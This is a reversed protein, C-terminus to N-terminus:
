INIGENGLKQDVEEKSKSSKIAKAATIVKKFKAPVKQLYSMIQNWKYHAVTMGTGGIIMGVAIKFLGGDTMDPTITHSNSNWLEMLANIVSEKIVVKETPKQSKSERDVQEELKLLIKKIKDENELKMKTNKNLYATEELKPIRIKTIQKGNVTPMGHEDEGIDKVEVKHNKFRGTLIEDGVEIPLEISENYIDDVLSNM